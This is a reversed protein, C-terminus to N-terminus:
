KSFNFYYIYKFEIKDDKKENKIADYNQTYISIFKSSDFTLLDLKTSTKIKSDQGSVRLLEAQAISTTILLAFLLHKFM